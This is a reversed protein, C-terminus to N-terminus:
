DEPRLSKLISIFKAETGIEDYFKDISFDPEGAMYVLRDSSQKICKKEMEEFKKKKHEKIDGKVQEVIKDKNKALGAAVVVGGVIGAGVLFHKKDFM